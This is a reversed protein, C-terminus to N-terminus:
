KIVPIRGKRERKELLSQNRAREARLFAFLFLYLVMSFSLALIAGGMSFTLLYDYMGHLLAALVLGAPLLTGPAEEHLIVGYAYGWFVSFGAHGLNGLILRPLTLDPGFAMLYLINEGGAFGLAVSVALLMGGSSNVFDRRRLTVPLAALFKVLEEVPGVVLFYLIFSLTGGSAAGGLTVGGARLLLETAAGAVPGSLLGAGFAILLTSYRLAQVM